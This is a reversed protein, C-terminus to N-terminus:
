GLRVAAPEALNLACIGDGGYEEEEEGNELEDISRWVQEAVWAVVVAVEVEYM